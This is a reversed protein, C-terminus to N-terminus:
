ERYYENSLSTYSCIGLLFGANLPVSYKPCSLVISTVSSGDPATGAIVWGLFTTRAIMPGLSVV